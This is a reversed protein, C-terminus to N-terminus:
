TLLENKNRHFAMLDIASIVSLSGSEDGLDSNTIDVVCMSHFETLQAASSSGHHSQMAPTCLQCLM